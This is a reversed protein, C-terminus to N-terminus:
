PSNLAPEALFGALDGLGWAILPLGVFIAVGILVTAAARVPYAVRSGGRIPTSLHCATDISRVAFDTAYRVHRRWMPPVKEVLLAVEHWCSCLLNATPVGWPNSHFETIDGTNQFGVRFGRIIM